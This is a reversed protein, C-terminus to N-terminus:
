EFLLDLVARQVDPEGSVTAFFIAAVRPSDEADRSEVHLVAGPRQRMSRMIRHMSSNPRSTMGRTRSSTASGM